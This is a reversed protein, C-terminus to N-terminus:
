ESCKTGWMDKRKVDGGDSPIGKPIHTCVGNGPDGVFSCVGLGKEQCLAECQNVSGGTWESYQDKTVGKNLKPYFYKGKKLNCNSPKTAPSPTPMPSPSQGPTPSPSPLPSPSSPGYPYPDDNSTQTTTTMNAKGTLEHPSDYGACNQFALTAVGLLAFVVGAKFYM